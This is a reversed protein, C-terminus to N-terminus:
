TQRLQVYPRILYARKFHILDILSSEEDKCDITYSYSKEVSDKTVTKLLGKSCKLVKQKLKM